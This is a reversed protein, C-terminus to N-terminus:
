REYAGISFASGQPRATGQIDESPASTDTGADAAPSGPSLALNVQPWAATLKPNAAIDGVGQGTAAAWAGDLIEARTFVKESRAVFEAQIEGDERSWFLNHSEKLHVKSGLYIGTPGDGIGPGTNFAFINNVLTLDIEPPVGTDDNPYGAVLAYDREAFASDYMNFAVANNVVEYIGPYKGVVVPTLGQGWVVNNEMRGGAWLKIGMLRNRFVQNRRVVIGTVNGEYDRSNLDIGDGGNDYVRCDEVLVDRGREFGIGDAGFSQQGQIGAGHVNLNRFVMRDCPGPTCDVATGIPGQVECDEMVVDSVPGEAPPDGSNGDTFRFGAEGGVVKLDHLHVYHNDGLLTVGWIPFDEIRLGALEVHSVGQSLQLRGKVVVTDVSDGIFAIPAAATGSSPFDVDGNYTGPAIRVTDGASASDAAHQITRWPHTESGDGSDNGNPSIHYTRADHQENDDPTTEDAGNEEPDPEVDAPPMAWILDPFTWLDRAGDRTIELSVTYNGPAEYVHRPNAENSTEGDGFNWVYTRDAGPTSVSEDTFLVDLPAPGALPFARFRAVPRESEPCGILSTAVFLVAILRIACSFPPIPHRLIGGRAARLWVGWSDREEAKM